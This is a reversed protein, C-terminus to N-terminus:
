TKKTDAMKYLMAEFDRAFMQANCLPSGAVDDRLTRRVAELRRFDGAYDIAKRIYEKLDTCVWDSLGAASLFSASHRHCFALGPLTLVPVGMWLSECTTVCGSWPFPDLAIDIDGYSELHSVQDTPPRMEVRGPLIGRALFQEAIRDCTEKEALALHKLILRSDPVAILIDAWAKITGDSLKAISNFCGFTVQGNSLAPLSQVPPADPPPSYCAYANPLRMPTEFFYPDHGEPTEVGDTVFYDLALIGITGHQGGAWKAQVPAPKRAIVGMRGGASHGAMDILIDLQHSHILQAADDDDLDTIDNWTSALARFRATYDDEPSRNAYLIFEIKERNVNELGALTLFGVAHRSFRASMLGVRLNGEAPQRDHHQRPQIQNIHRDAWRGAIRQLAELDMDELAYANRLHYGDGVSDIFPKSLAREFSTHAQVAQGSRSYALALNYDFAPADFGLSQASSLARAASAPFGSSLNALGTEYLTQALLEQAHTGEEISSPILEILNNVQDLLFTDASARAKPVKDTIRRLWHHLKELM